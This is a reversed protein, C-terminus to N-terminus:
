LFVTTIFRPQQISLSSTSFFSLVQRKSCSTGRRGSGMYGHCCGDIPKILSYLNLKGWARATLGLLALHCSLLWMLSAKYRSGRQEEVGSSPVRPVTCACHQLMWGDLWADMGPLFSSGELPLPGVARKIFSTPQPLRSKLRFSQHRYLRSRM